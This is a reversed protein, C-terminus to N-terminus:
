PHPNPVVPNYVRNLIVQEEYDNYRDAVAAVDVLSSTLLANQRPHLLTPLSM